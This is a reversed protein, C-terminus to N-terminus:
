YAYVMYDTIEATRWPRIMNLSDFTVMEKSNAGVNEVFQGTLGNCRGDSGYTAIMVYMSPVVEDTDNMVSGSLVYQSGVREASFESVPYTHAVNEANVVAFTPVLSLTQESSTVGLLEKGFQNFIYGKEGPQIIVPFVSIDPDVMVVNGDEDQISFSMDKAYINSDGTNTIEVYADYSYGSRVSPNEYACIISDSIEYSAPAFHKESSVGSITSVVILLVLATLVGLIGIKGFKMHWVDLFKTKIMDIYKGFNLSVNGIKKGSGSKDSEQNKQADSEAIARRMAEARKDDAM